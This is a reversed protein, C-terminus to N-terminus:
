VSAGSVQRGNQLTTDMASKLGIFMILREFKPSRSTMGSCPSYLYPVIDSVLSVIV